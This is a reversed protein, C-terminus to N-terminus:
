KMGFINKLYEVDNEQQRSFTRGNEHRRSFPEFHRCKSPELQNNLSNNAKDNFKACESKRYCDIGKCM